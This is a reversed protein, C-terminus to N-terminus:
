GDTRLTASLLYKSKYDYNLRGFFSLLKDDPSYYNDTSQAVGQTTLKFAQDSTFLTPFGHVVSTLQNTNTQIM